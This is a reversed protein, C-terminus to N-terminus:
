HFLGSELPKVIGDHIVDSIATAVSRFDTIQRRQNIVSSVDVARLDGSIQGTTRLSGDENTWGQNINVFGQLDLDYIEEGSMANTCDKIFATAYLTDNDLSVLATCDALEMKDQHRYRNGKYAVQIKKIEFDIGTRFLDGLQGAGIIVSLASNPIVNVVRESSNADIAILDIIDRMEARSLAFANASLLTISLVYLSKKLRKITKM